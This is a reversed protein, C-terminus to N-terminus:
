KGEIHEKVIKAPVGVVFVKEPLNDVVVAGAGIVTLSGITLNDIITAGIGVYVSNGLRCKGAINVGPQITCYDGLTTDHGITAGRNIRVHCGLRTNSSLIVGPELICGESVVASAPVRVTPHIITAFRFGIRRAQEIFRSRHVTALCCVALCEATLPAADDIWCVPFGAHSGSCKSRDLNEVFGEMQLGPIEAVIEAVVHAYDNTGLIIIKQKHVTMIKTWGL